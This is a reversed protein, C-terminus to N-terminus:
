RDAGTVYTVANIERWNPSVMPDKTGAHVLTEVLDESGELKVRSLYGIYDRVFNSQEEDLLNGRKDRKKPYWSTVTVKHPLSKAINLVDSCQRIVETREEITMKALELATPYTKM